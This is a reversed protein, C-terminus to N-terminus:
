GSQWLSPKALSNKNTDGQVAISEKVSIPVGLLPTDREMQEASKAGSRVFRDVQQAEKLADEFREDVVCNLLPQVQRTRAVFARMVEESSV